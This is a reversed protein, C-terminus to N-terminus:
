RCGSDEISRRLENEDRFRLIVKTNKCEEEGYREVFAECNQFLDIYYKQNDASLERFWSAEWGGEYKITSDAEPLRTDLDYNKIAKMRIINGKRDVGVKSGSDTSKIEGAAHFSSSYKALFNKNDTKYCFSQTVGLITDISESCMREARFRYKLKEDVDLMGREREKVEIEASREDKTKLIFDQNDKDKIKLIRKDQPKKVLIESVHIDVVKENCHECVEIISQTVIGNTTKMEYRIAM